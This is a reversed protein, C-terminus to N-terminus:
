PLAIAQVPRAFLARLTGILVDPTELLIHHNAGPIAVPEGCNPFYNRVKEAFDANIVDSHEGYIYDIPTGINPPAFRKDDNGMQPDIAPDFKWAWGDTEQILGNTAVNQIIAPDVPPGSPILRYRSIADAPNKYLRRVVKSQELQFASIPPATPLYLRSDIIVARYIAAPQHHCAFVTPTGSFSHAVITAPAIGSDELVALIQQGFNSVSYGSRWGSEGMGGLDMAVVRFHRTFSPVIHDWWHSHAWMGHIFLLGPVHDPNSDFRRYHVDADDVRVLHSTGM